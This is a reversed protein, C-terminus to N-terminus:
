RDRSSGRRVKRAAACLAEKPTRIPKWDPFRGEPEAELEFQLIGPLILKTKPLVNAAFYNHYVRMGIEAGDRSAMVAIGSLTTNHQSTLRRRPGYWRRLIRAGGEPAVASSILASEIGYMAVKVAYDDALEPWVKVVDYVVLLTPVKERSLAKLQPLADAIKKRIRDGPIGWHYVNEADWEEPPMNLLQKEEANPEIQKVEVIIETDQLCLRYDPSKGDCEQIRQFSLQRAACFSEFLQESETM